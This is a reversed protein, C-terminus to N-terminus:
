NLQFTTKAKYSDSIWKLADYRTWTLTKEYNPRYEVMFDELDKGVLGTQSTIMSKNFFLDVQSQRVENAYYKSFRRTNKGEISLLNYLSGIPSFIYSLASNKGTPLPANKFDRKLDDILRNGTIVVENLTTADKTLTLVLDNQGSIIVRLDKYNLKSVILTDGVNANIQFIGMLDTLVTYRNRMNTLRSQMVRSKTGAELVAGRVVLDQAQSELSLLLVTIFALSIRLIVM